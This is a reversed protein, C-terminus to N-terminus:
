YDLSFNYFIVGKQGDPVAGPFRLNRIRSVFCSHVERSGINSKVVRVRKTLGQSELIEWRVTLQGRLHSNRKLAREYCYTLVKRNKRIVERVVEGNITGQFEVAESDIEVKISSREGLTGSTELSDGGEEGLRGVDSVKKNSRSRRSLGSTKLAGGLSDGRRNQTQGSSGRSQSATGQVQGVGSIADQLKSQTGKKSFVSLLGQARVDKRRPPASGKTNATKIAGGKKLASPRKKGRRRKYKKIIKPTKKLKSIKDKKLPKKRIVKPKKKSIKKIVKLPKKKPPPIVKPKKFPVPPKLKVVVKREKKDEPPKLHPVMSLYFALFLMSLVSLLLGFIQPSKFELFPLMFPTTAQPVFRIYLSLNESKMDIRLMQNQGMSVFNLSAESDMFLVKSLPESSKDSIFEGDFM